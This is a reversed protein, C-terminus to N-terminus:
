FFYKKLVKEDVKADPVNVLDNGMNGLIEHLSIDRDNGYVTIEQLAAVKTSGTIVSKTKAENLTELIFGTKNQGIVKYLGPKGSVAVIGLLNM